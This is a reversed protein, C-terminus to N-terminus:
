RQHEPFNFLVTPESEKASPGLVVFHEFMSTPPQLVEIRASIDAVKQPLKFPTLASQQVELHETGQKLRFSKICISTAIGDTREPQAEHKALRDRLSNRESILQAILRSDKSERELAYDLASSLRAKDAKLRECQALLEMYRQKLSAEAM